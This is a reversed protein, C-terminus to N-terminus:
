THPNKKECSLHGDFQSGSLFCVENNQVSPVHVDGAVGEVVLVQLWVVDGLEQLVRFVLLHTEYLIYFLIYFLIFSFFYFYFIFIFIFFIFLIFIVKIFNIFIKLM